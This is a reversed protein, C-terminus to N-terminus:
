RASPSFFFSRSQFDDLIAKSLQLEGLRSDGVRRFNALGRAEQDADKVFEGLSGGPFRSRPAVRFSKLRASCGSFRGRRCASGVTCKHPVRRSLRRQMEESKLVFVPMAMIRCEEIVRTSENTQSSWTKREAFSLATTVQTQNIRSKDKDCSGYHHGFQLKSPCIELHRRKRTATRKVCLSLNQLYQIPCSAAWVLTGRGRSSRSTAERIRDIASPKKM